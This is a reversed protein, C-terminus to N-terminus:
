KVKEWFNWLGVLEKHFGHSLMEREATDKNWREVKVRYLAVSLGTRDQGHSCHIFLGDKPTRKLVELLADGPIPELGMQAGFSIPVPYVGMGRIAAGTDNGESDPNLKIVHLVGQQMLWEWGADTPQGGRWVGPEVQALNPIGHTSTMTQCGSALVILGMLFAIKM